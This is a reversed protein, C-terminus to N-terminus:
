KHAGAGRLGLSADVAQQLRVAHNSFIWEVGRNLERFLCNKSAVFGTGIRQGARAHRQRLRENLLLYHGLLGGYGGELAAASLRAVGLEAVALCHRPPVFDALSFLRPDLALLHYDRGPVLPELQERLIDRQRAPDAFADAKLELMLHTHGGFEAVLEALSPLQPLQARLEAFRQERLTLDRGFVRRTDPDHHIVPVLDASWRIDCEIGWIGSARALRFAALTNEPIGANDHAGRHAVIRCGRLAAEDPARRAITAQVADTARLATNKLIERM